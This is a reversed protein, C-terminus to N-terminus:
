KNLCRCLVNRHRLLPRSLTEFWWGWSQKRLRKNLRLYLFCWLEADRAKTLIWRPGTFEGCLHGTVRFINGNSSTMMFHWKEPMVIAGTGTSCRQSIYVSSNCSDVLRTVTFVIFCLVILYLYWCQELSWQQPYISTFVPPLSNSQRIGIM